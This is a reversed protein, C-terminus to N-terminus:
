DPANTFFSDRESDSIQASRTAGEFLTTASSYGARYRAGHMARAVADLQNNLKKYTVLGGTM